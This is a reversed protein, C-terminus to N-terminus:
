IIIFLTRQSNMDCKKQCQVICVHIPPLYAALNQRTFCFLFGWGFGDRYTHTHTRVIRVHFHWIPFTQHNVVCRFLMNVSRAFAVCLLTFHRNFIIKWWTLFRSILIAYLWLLYVMLIQYSNASCVCVFAASMQKACVCRKPAHSSKEKWKWASSTQFSFKITSISAM